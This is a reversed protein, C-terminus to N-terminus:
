GGAGEGEPSIKVWLDPSPTFHILSNCPIYLSKMKQPYVGPYVSTSVEPLTIVFVM